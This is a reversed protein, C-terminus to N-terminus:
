AQGEGKPLDAPGVETVLDDLVAALKAITLLHEHRIRVLRATQVGGQVYLVGTRAHEQAEDVLKRQEQNLLHRWGAVRAAELLGRSM